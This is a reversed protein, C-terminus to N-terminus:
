TKTCYLFHDIFFSVCGLTLKIYTRINSLKNTYLSVYRSSNARIEMYIKERRNSQLKRECILYPFIQKITIDIVQVWVYMCVYMCTFM